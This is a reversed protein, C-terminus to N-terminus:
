NKRLSGKATNQERREQPMKQTLICSRSVISIYRSKDIFYCMKTNVKLTKRRQRKEESIGESIRVFAGLIIYVKTVKSMTDDHTREEVIFVYFIFQRIAYESQKYSKLKRAYLGKGARNLSINYVFLIM